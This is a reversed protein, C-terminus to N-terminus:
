KLTSELFIYVSVKDCCILDGIKNCVDCIDVNGDEVVVKPKAKEKEAEKAAKEVALPCLRSGEPTYITNYDDKLSPDRNFGSSIEAPFESRPVKPVLIKESKGEVPSSTRTIQNNKRRTSKQTSPNEAAESARKLRM